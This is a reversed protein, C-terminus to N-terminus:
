NNLLVNLNDFQNITAGGTYHNTVSVATGYTRPEFEPSPMSTQLYIISKRCQTSKNTITVCTREHPQHFPFLPPLGRILRLTNERLNPTSGLWFTSDDSHHEFSRHVVPTCKARQWSSNRPGQDSM